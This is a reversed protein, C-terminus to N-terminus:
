IRSDRRVRLRALFAGEDGRWVVEMDLGERKALIALTAPDVFVQPFPAGREGRFELQYHAEGPYEGEFWEPPLEQDAAAPASPEELLNTSDLLIQGGEELRNRLARLFGPVGGLSGALAIGNMLVLITDFVEGTALDELRGKRADRVGREAMIGVAEPIVELATVEFGLGQLALTVSGVGAGLDLVRGKVHDLAIRDEDRLESPSRFFLSVPLPDAEGSDVHVELVAGKDGEAFATLAKAL